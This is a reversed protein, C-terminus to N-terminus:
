KQPRKAFTTGIGNQRALNVVERRSKLGLKELINHVHNRVTNESIFLRDAIERNTGNAALERLVQMERSTLVSFPEGAATTPTAGGGSRSMENMLRAAMERSIAAEGRELGRLAMVLKPIPVSKLLFGRAGMRIATFFPEDDDQASLFVIKLDPRKALLTRAADLGTGDPLHLNMLVVDPRLRATMELAERTTSAEGLVTMDPQHALALVLNQRFLIQDDVILLKM